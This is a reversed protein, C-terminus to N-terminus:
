QVDKFSVSYSTDITIPSAGAGGTPLYLNRIVGRIGLHSIDDNLSNIWPSRKPVIAPQAGTASLGVELNPVPRVAMKIMNRTANFYKTKVGMQQRFASTTPPLTSDYDTDYELYPMPITNIGSQTSLSAVNQGFQWRCLVNNIKYQDFLTTFEGAGAIQQLQFQLLFPVDYVDTGLLPNATPTGLVLMTGASPAPNQTILTSSGDAMVYTLVKSKRIVHLFGKGGYSKKYKRFIGRAILMGRSRSALRLKGTKKSRYAKYVRPM